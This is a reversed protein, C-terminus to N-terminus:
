PLQSLRDVVVISPMLTFHLMMFILDPLVCTRTVFYVRRPPGSSALSLLTRSKMLISCERRVILLFTLDMRTPVSAGSREQKQSTMNMSTLWSDVEPRSIMELEVNEMTLTRLWVM